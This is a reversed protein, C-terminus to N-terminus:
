SRKESGFNNVVYDGKYYNMTFIRVSKPLPFHFDFSIRFIKNMRIM